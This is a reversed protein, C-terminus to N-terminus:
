LALSLFKIRPFMVDDSHVDEPAISLYFKGRKFAYSRLFVPILEHSVHIGALSPIMKNLTPPRIAWSFERVTRLLWCPM